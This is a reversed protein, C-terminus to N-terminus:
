GRLTVLDTPEPSALLRAKPRTVEAGRESM